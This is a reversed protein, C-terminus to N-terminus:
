GSTPAVDPREGRREFVLFIVAGAFSALTAFALPAAYTGTIQSLTGGLIPGVTNSLSIASQLMGTSTGMERNKMSLYRISGSYASGWSVGILMMGALFQYYTTATFMIFFALSAVLFGFPVLRKPNVRETTQMVVFQIVSNISFLIGVGAASIGLTSLYVPFVIWVTQAGLHRSFYGLYVGLNRKIIHAPFFPVRQPHFATDDMKLAILFSILFLMSSFTFARAYTGLIGALFTGLAWGLSQYSAFKGLKGKRDNVYAILVPPLIGVAFGSLFRFFLLSLPSNALLMLLFTAASLLLGAQLIKRRGINDSLRGFYYSSIFISFGFVTGILGLETDSAGVEKALLPVFIWPTSRATSSLFSVTEAKVATPM